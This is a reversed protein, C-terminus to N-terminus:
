LLIAIRRRRAIELREGLKFGAVCARKRGEGRLDAFARVVLEGAEVEFAQEVAGLSRPDAEVSGGHAGRRFMRRDRLNVHMLTDVALLRDHGGSWHLGLIAFVLCAGPLIRRGRRLRLIAHRRYDQAVWRLSVLSRRDIWKPQGLRVVLGVLLGALGVIDVLASTARRDLLDSARPRCNGLARFVGLRPLRVGPRRRHSASLRAFFMGTLCQAQRSAATGPM